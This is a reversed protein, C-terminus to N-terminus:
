RSYGKAKNKRDKEQYKHIGQECPSSINIGAKKPFEEAMERDFETPEKAPIFQQYKEAEKSHPLHWTKAFGIFKGDPMRIMPMAREERIQQTCGIMLAVEQKEDKGDPSRGEAKLTNPLLITAADVDAQICVAQIVEHLDGRPSCARMQDLPVDIYHNNKTRLVVAPIIEKAGCMQGQAVLETQKFLEDLAARERPENAYKMLRSIGDNALGVVAEVPNRYIQHGDEHLLKKFYDRDQKDDVINALHGYFYRSVYDDPIEVPSGFGRFRGDVTRLTPLVLKQLEGETEGIIAVVENAGKIRVEVPNVERGSWAEFYDRGGQGAMVIAKAGYASCMERAVEALADYCENRLHWPPSYTVRGEIGDIFITHDFGGRERMWRTVTHQAYQMLDALIEHNSKTTSM